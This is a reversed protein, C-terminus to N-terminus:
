GDINMNCPMFTYMDKSSSIMGVTKICRFVIDHLNVYNSYVDLLNQAKWCKCNLLM